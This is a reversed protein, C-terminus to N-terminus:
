DDTHEEKPRWCLVGNKEWRTGNWRLTGTMTTPESDPNVRIWQVEYLGPEQPIHGILRWSKDSYGNARLWQEPIRKVSMM